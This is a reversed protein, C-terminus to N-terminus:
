SHPHDGHKPALFKALLIRLWPLVGVTSLLFTLEGHCNLLHEM